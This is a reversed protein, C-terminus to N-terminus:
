DSRRLQRQFMTDKKEYGAKELAEDFQNRQKLAPHYTSQDHPVKIMSYGSRASFTEILTLLTDYIHAAEKGRSAICLAMCLSNNEAEKTLLCGRVLRDNQDLVVMSLGEQFNPHQLIAEQLHSRNLVGEEDALLQEVGELLRSASRLFRVNMITLDKETVNIVFFQRYRRHALRMMVSLPVSIGLFPIASRFIAFFFVSVSAIVLLQFTLLPTGLTSLLSFKITDKVTYSSFYVNTIPMYLCLAAVIYVFLFVGMTWIIGLFSLSDEFWYTQYVYWVNALTVAVLIVMILGLGNAKWFRQKYEAMFTALMPPEDGDIMVRRIIVGIALLAPFVGLVVGGILTGLVFLLNIQVWHSITDFMKMWPGKEENIHYDM